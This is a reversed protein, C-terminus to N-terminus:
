ILEGFKSKLKNFIFLGAALFLLSYFIMVVVMWPAPIRSYIVLDRSITIFYYLPNFLNLYFLTTNSNVSYFVPTAFWVIRVIFTWINKLDVFFVSLSSLMFSFGLIFISFFILVPFYWFINIFSANFIIMIVVFLLVEFSHSFLTRLTNSIVLSAKNFNLSKIVGGYDQVLNTSDVTANQFFNFMVIGMLLYVPYFPIGTGLRSSFILLLISFLIAPNLLYWLIGLYSGENRLKFSYKALQFGLRLTQRFEKYKNSFMKNDQM